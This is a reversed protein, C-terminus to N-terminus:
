QSPHTSLDLYLSTMCRYSVDMLGPRSCGTHIYLNFMYIESSFCDGRQQPLAKVSKMIIVPNLCLLVFILVTDKELLIMIDLGYEFFISHIVWIM